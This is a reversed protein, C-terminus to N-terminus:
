IDAGVHLFRKYKDDFKTAHSTKLDLQNTYLISPPNGLVSVFCMLRSFKTPSHLSIISITQSERLCPCGLHLIKSDSILATAM